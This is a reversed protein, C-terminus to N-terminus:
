GNEWLKKPASQFELPIRTLPLKELKGGHELVVGDENIANIKIGSAIADGLTYIKGRQGSQSIIVKAESTGGATLIGTLHLQLSTIPLFDEDSGFLHQTPIQAILQSEADVGTAIHESAPKQHALNFDDHWAYIMSFTTFLVLLAALALVAMGLQRGRESFLFPAVLEEFM